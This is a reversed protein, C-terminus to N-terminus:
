LSAHIGFPGFSSINGFIHASCDNYLRSIFLSSLSYKACLSYCGGIYRRVPLKEKIVFFTSKALFLMPIIGVAFSLIIRLQGEQAMGQFIFNIILSFWFFSQLKYLESKQERYLVVNFIFNLLSFFVIIVFTTLIFLNM